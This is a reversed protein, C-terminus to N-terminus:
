EEITDRIQEKSKIYVSINGLEGVQTTILLPKHKNGRFIQINKSLGTLKLIRTFQEMNFIDSYYEPSPDNLEGFSVDRAYIGQASCAINLSYKTMTITLTDGGINSMDKLTRQYDSSPIIIPNDYGDHLKNINVHQAMHIKITSNIVRNNEKPFVTILLDNPRTPEISILLADKKKISKLMKYLHNLHIGVYKEKEEIEYINFNTSPLLMDILIYRHSDMMRMHIGDPQLKLCATKVNNQLLEALVKITYGENTKARFM